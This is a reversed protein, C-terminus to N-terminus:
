NGALDTIEIKYGNDNEKTDTKKGRGGMKKGSVRNSGLWHTSWSWTYWDCHVQLLWNEYWSLCETETCREELSSSKNHRDWPCWPSTNTTTKKKLPQTHSEHTLEQLTTSHVAQNHSCVFSMSDLESLIVMCNKHMLRWLLGVDKPRHCLSFYSYVQLLVATKKLLSCHWFKVKVPGSHCTSSSFFSTPSSQGLASSDLIYDKWIKWMKTSIATMTPWESLSLCRM